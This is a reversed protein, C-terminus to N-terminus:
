RGITTHSSDCYSNYLEELNDGRRLTVNVLVLEVPADCLGCAAMKALPGGYM